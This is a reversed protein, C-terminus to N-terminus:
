IHTVKEHFGYEVKKEKQQFSLLELESINTVSHSMDRSHDHSFSLCVLHPLGIIQSGM